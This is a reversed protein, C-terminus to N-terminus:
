KGYKLADEYTLPKSFKYGQLYKLGLQLSIDIMVSDEIGEAVVIVGHKHCLEVLYTIFDYLVAKKDIKLMVERDIKLETIPTSFMTNISSYGTGFDDIAIGYGELKLKDLQKLIFANEDLMLSETIEIILNSPKLNHKKVTSRIYEYYLPDALEMVSVNVSVSVDTGHVRNYQRIFSCAEDIIFRGIKIIAGSREAFPIFESPYVPGRKKSTWRCLAEFSYVEQNESIVIPQFVPYFEQDELGKILNTEIFMKRQIHEKTENTYVTFKSEHVKMEELTLFFRNFMDECSPFFEEQPYSMMVAKYIIESSLDFKVHISSLEQEFRLCMEEIQQQSIQHNTRFSFVFPIFRYIEFYDSFISRLVKTDEDILKDIFDQGYVTLLHNMYSLDVFLLTGSKEEDLDHEIDVILRNANPLSTLKDIYAVNYLELEFGKRMSIDTHTGIMHGDGDFNAIGQAEIWLYQGDKNRVRYETSFSEMDSVKQRRADHEFKDCDEPHILHVWDDLTSGTPSIDFQEYFKANYFIVCNDSSMEWLGTHSLNFLDILNNLSEAKGISFDGASM